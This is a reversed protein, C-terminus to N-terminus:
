TLTLNFLYDRPPINPHDIYNVTVKYQLVDDKKLFNSYHKTTIENILSNDLFREPDLAAINMYIYQSVHMLNNTHDEIYNSQQFETLKDGLTTDIANHLNDMFNIILIFLGRFDTTNNIFNSIYTLYEIGLNLPLHLDNSILSLENFIPHNQNVIYKESKPFISYFDSNLPFSKFLLNQPKSKQIDYITDAYIQFTNNIINTPCTYDLIVDSTFDMSPNFLICKDASINVNLMPLFFHLKM